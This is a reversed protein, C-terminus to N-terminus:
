ETVILSGRFMEMGCTFEYTGPKTPAIEVSTKAGAALPTAAVALAPIKVADFCASKTVRDFTIRIPAGARATVVAPNFGADTVSVTVVEAGGERVAPVAGRTLAASRAEAAARYRRNIESDVVHGAEPVWKDYEMYRATGKAAQPGLLKSVVHLAGDIGASVGATTVLKGNDVFRADEHVTVKPYASKFNPVAGHWTTAHQGDLLHLDAIVFAGTCVTLVIEAREATAGVWRMAEPSKRVAGTGGGPLVLIDAPPASELTYRPTITVFGQSLVPDAKIGVTYVNFAKGSAQFVESPGAFDLIEMGDYVLIAVNRTNPEKDPSDAKSAGQQFAGLLTVLVALSMLYM